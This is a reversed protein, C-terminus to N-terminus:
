VDLVDDEDTIVEVLRLAETKQLHQEIEANLESAEQLSRAVREKITRRKKRRDNLM